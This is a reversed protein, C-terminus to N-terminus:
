YKALVKSWEKLTKKEIENCYILEGNKFIYGYSSYLIPTKVDMIHFQIRNTFVENARSLEFDKYGAILIVVKESVKSWYKLLEKELPVGCLSGCVSKPYYIYFFTDDKVNFSDKVIEKILPVRSECTTQSFSYYGVLFCILGLLCKM